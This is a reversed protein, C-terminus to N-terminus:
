GADDDAAADVGARRHGDLRTAELSRLRTAAEREARSAGFKARNTAAEADSGARAKQKRARRLNVIEGM